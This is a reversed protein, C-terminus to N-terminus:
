DYEITTSRGDYNFTLSALVSNDTPHAKIIASENVEIEIKVNSYYEGTQFDVLTGNLVTTINKIYEKKLRAIRYLQNDYIIWDSLNLKSAEEPTIKELTANEGKLFQTLGYPTFGLGISGNIVMTGNLVLTGNSIMNEVIRPDTFNITHIEANVPNSILLIIILIFIITRLSFKSFWVKDNNKIM